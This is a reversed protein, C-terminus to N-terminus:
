NSWQINSYHIFYETEDHVIKVFGNNISTDFDNIFEIFEEPLQGSINDKSNDLLIWDNLFKFYINM